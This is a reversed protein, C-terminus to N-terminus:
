GIQTRVMAVGWVLAIWVLIALLIALNTKFKRRHIEGIPM